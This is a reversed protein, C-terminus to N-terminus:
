GCFLEVLNFKFTYCTCQKNRHATYAPMLLWCYSFQAQVETQPTKQHLAVASLPHLQLTNPSTLSQRLAECNLDGWSAASIEAGLKLSKGKVEELSSSPGFCLQKKKEIVGFWVSPDGAVDSFTFNCPPFQERRVKQWEEKLLCITM